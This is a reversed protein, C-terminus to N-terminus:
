TSSALLALGSMRGSNRQLGNLLVEAQAYLALSNRARTVATYVLARSLLPTDFDPLVLDVRGFESGQSKHVTLAYAWEHRPLSALSVTHIGGHLQFHVKFVDSNRWVLGIDGNALGLSPVNETVILVQGHRNGRAHLRNGIRANLTISGFPGERLPSLIIRESLMSLADEVTSQEAIAKYHTVAEDILAAIDHPSNGFFGAGAYFNAILRTVVESPDIQMIESALTSLGISDSQRYNHLLRIHATDLRRQLGTGAPLSLLGRLVSGIEISPLQDPDGVLLLHCSAPLADFLQLTTPLDIMSAEDFVLLDAELPREPSYRSTRSIPHIALLRHLTQASEPLAGWLGADLTQLLAPKQQQWAESMRSAAKGTPACLWIKPIRQHRNWFLNIWKVLSASIASTKGTGPGGTLLTLPKELCSYALRQPVSLSADVIRDNCRTIIHKVLRNEMLWYKKLYLRNKFVVLLCAGADQDPQHLVSVLRNGAFLGTLASFIDTVSDADAFYGTADLCSNGESACQFCDFALQRVLNLSGPDASFILEAFATASASAPDAYRTDEVM